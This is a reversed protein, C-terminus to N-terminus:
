IRRTKNLDTIRKMPGGNSEPEEKHNPGKKIVELSQEDIEVEEPIKNDKVVKPLVIYRVCGNLYEARCTVVGVFGTVKDKVKDGLQIKTKM